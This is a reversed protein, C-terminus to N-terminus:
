ETITLEEVKVEPVVLEKELGYSDYEGDVSIHIKGVAEDTKVEMTFEIHQQRLNGEILVCNIEVKQIDVGMGSSEIEDMLLDYYGDASISDVMNKIDEGTLVVIYNIEGDVSAKKVLQDTVFWLYPASDAQMFESSMKVTDDKTMEEVSWQNMEPNFSYFKNGIIRFLYGELSEQMAPGADMKFNASFELMEKPINIYGTSQANVFIRKMQMMAAMQEDAYDMQVTANLNINFAFPMKSTKQLAAYLEPQKTKLTAGKANAKETIGEISLFHIEKKVDNKVLDHNTNIQFASLPGSYKGGSIVAGEMYMAYSANTTIVKDAKNLVVAFGNMEFLEQGNEESYEAGLLDFTAKLPLYVDEGYTVGVFNQRVGDVYVSYDGSNGDAFVVSPVLCVLLTVLIVLFKRM